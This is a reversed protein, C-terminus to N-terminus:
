IFWDTWIWEDGALHAQAADDLFFFHSKFNEKERKAKLHLLSLGRTTNLQTINQQITNLQTTNHQTASLFDLESPLLIPFIVKCIYNNVAPRPPCIYSTLSKKLQGALSSFLINITCYNNKMWKKGLTKLAM